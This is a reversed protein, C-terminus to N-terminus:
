ILNPVVEIASSGPRKPRSGSSTEAPSASGSTSTRRWRRCAATPPAASSAAAYRVSHCLTGPQSAIKSMVTPLEDLSSEGTLLVDLTADSLLDLALNLRRKYDWRASQAAPLTGVQSSRITLRQSHFAAFSYSTDIYVDSGFEINRPISGPYWDDELRPREVSM